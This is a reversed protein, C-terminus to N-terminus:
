TVPEYGLTSRAATLDYTRDFALQALQYRSFRPESGAKSVLESLRAFALALDVPISKIEPAEDGLGNRIAERIPTAVGDSVNFARNGAYGANLADIGLQVISNFNEFSTFEHVAKGGGPLLLTGNRIARRVRPALTQDSPGILAHPRFIMFRGRAGDRVQMESAFKSSSYSNLFRYDGTAQDENVAISPKSLDYVSSSSVHIFHGTGIGLATATIACNDNELRPDLGDRTIAACNLITWEKGFHFDAPKTLDHSIHSVGELGPNSRSVGVVEYGNAVLKQALFSGLSGSVGTVLIKTM